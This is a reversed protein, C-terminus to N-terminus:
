LLITAIAQAPAKRAKRSAVITLMAKGSMEREKAPRSPVREGPHEVAVEDDDGGQQHRGASQGVAEAVLADEQEADAAEGRGAQEACSAGESSSSIAKRTTWPM